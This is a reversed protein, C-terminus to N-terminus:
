PEAIGAVAEPDLVGEFVFRADGELVAAEPNAPRGPFTVTLAVGSTPVVRYSEPGGGLREAFASAVAGTGCSLTEGEVGREWTRIRIAATGEREVLDVNAGADGFAPHRRAAPGLIELPAEAVRPVVM